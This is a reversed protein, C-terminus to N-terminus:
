PLEPAPTQSQIQRVAPNNLLANFKPNNLLAQMDGALVAQMIQPDNLIAQFQPDNQLSLILSMLQPDALLQQQIGNLAQPTATPPPNSNNTSSRPTRILDMQDSPLKLLGLSSSNLTYVRGDFYKIEASITSGDKLVIERVDGALVPGSFIASFLSIAFPVAFARWPLKHRLVGIYLEIGRNM